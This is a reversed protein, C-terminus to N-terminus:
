FLLSCFEILVLARFNLGFHHFFRFLLALVYECFMRSIHCPKRFIQKM